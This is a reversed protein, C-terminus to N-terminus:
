DGSISLKAKCKHRGTRNRVMRRVSHYKVVDAPEIISSNVGFIDDGFITRAFLYIGEHTRRQISEPRKIHSQTEIPAYQDKEAGRELTSQTCDSEFELCLCQALQVGVAPSNNLDM